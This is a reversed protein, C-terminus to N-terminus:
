PPIHLEIPSIAYYLQHSFHVQQLLTQPDLQSSCILNLRVPILRNSQYRSTTNNRLMQLLMTQAPKSLCEIHELYLTGGNAQEAKSSQGEGEDTGFLERMMQDMSLDQCNVCIFPGHNRLGQNHIAMALQRKGTGNEGLLLVPSATKSARKAITIVQKMQNSRAIFSDFSLRINSGARHQLHAKATEPPHFFLLYSEHAVPKLSVTAEIFRELCEFTIDVRSLPQEQSIAAQLLPPFLLMSELSKGIVRDKDFGLLKEAQQNMYSLRNNSDWAILGDDMGSLLADRQSLIHNSEALSTELQFM